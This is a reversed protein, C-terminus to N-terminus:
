ATQPGATRASNLITTPILLGRGAFGTLRDLRMFFADRLRSTARLAWLVEAHTWAAERAARVKWMAVADDTDGGASDVVAVLGTSFEVKIDAEVAELLGNVHTFDDYRAGRQEPAGDQALYAAVIGQPLDRNIHANMGALAFQIARIGRRHRCEFLPRWAPPADRWQRDGAAVADFYLNAFLIDLREMFRADHFTSTQVADRVALTVRLYLRNFWWVGDNNTLERDLASMIEIVEDVSAARRGVALQSTTAASV